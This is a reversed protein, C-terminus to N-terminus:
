TGVLDITGKMGAEYHGPEHCAFGYPGPGNFTYVLENTSGADLKDKEVATVGDAADLAVKDAPGVQFEHTVTGSNTLIGLTRSFKTIAYM